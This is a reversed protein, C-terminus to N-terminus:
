LFVVSILSLSQIRKNVQWPTQYLANQSKDKSILIKNHSRMGVYLIYVLELSLYNKKRIFSNIINLSSMLCNMSVNFNTLDEVSSTM